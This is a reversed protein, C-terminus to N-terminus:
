EIGYKSVNNRPGGPFPHVINTPHYAGQPENGPLKQDEVTRSLMRSNCLVLQPVNFLWETGRHLVGGWSWRRPLLDGSWSRDPHINHCLPSADPTEKRQHCVTGGVEPQDMVPIDTRYSQSLAQNQM